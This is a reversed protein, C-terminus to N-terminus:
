AHPQIIIAAIFDAAEDYTTAVALQRAASRKGNIMRSRNRNTTANHRLWKVLELRMEEATNAQIIFPM